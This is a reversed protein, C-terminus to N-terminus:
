ALVETRASSHHIFTGTMAIFSLQPLLHFPGTNASGRVICGTARVNVSM